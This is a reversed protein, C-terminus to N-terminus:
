LCIGIFFFFFFLVLFFFRFFPRLPSSAFRAERREAPVLCHLAAFCAAPFGAGAGGAAAPGGPTGPWGRPRAQWPAVALGPPARPGVTGPLLGAGTTTGHRPAWAAGPPEGHGGGRQSRQALCHNGFKAGPEGAEQRPNGASGLGAAAGPSSRSRPTLIPGPYGHPPGPVRPHPHAPAHPQPHGLGPTPISWDRHPIDHAARQPNGTGLTPHGLGWLTVARRGTGRARVGM